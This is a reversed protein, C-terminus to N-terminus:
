NLKSFVLMICSEQHILEFREIDLKYEADRLFPM